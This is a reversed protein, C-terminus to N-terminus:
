CQTWYALTCKRMSPGEAGIPQGDVVEDADVLFLQAQAPGIGQGHRRVDAM